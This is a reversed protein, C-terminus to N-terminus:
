EVFVSGQRLVAASKFCRAVGREFTARGLVEANPCQGGGRNQFQCPGAGSCMSFSRGSLQSPSVAWWRQVKVPVHWELNFTARGRVETHQFHGTVGRSVALRGLVAARQFHCVVDHQFQFSGARRCM